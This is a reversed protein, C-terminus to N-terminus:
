KQKDFSFMSLGNLIALRDEKGLLSEETSDIDSGNRTDPKLVNVTTANNSADNFSQKNKTNESEINMSGKLPAAIEETSTMNNLRTAPVPMETLILNEQSLYWYVANSILSAKRRGAANLADITIQHLPDVSCFRITFRAEDKKVLNVGGKMM